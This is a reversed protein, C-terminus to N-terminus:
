WEVRITVVERPRARFPIRRAREGIPVADVPGEDLRVQQARACPQPLEWRGEVVRDTVNVCRLIMGHGKAWPKFAKFALGHGVLRPGAVARLPEVADPLMLGALAAHFEEALFELRTLAERGGSGCGTLAVALEARFPGLLAAGPVPQPWAAHGPRARLDGRSLETVSRYLTVAITGHETLEYEFLGRAFV